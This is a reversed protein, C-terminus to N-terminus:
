YLKSEASKFAFAGSKVYQIYVYWYCWLVISPGLVYGTVMMSCAHEQPRPGLQLLESATQLLFTKKKLNLNKKSLLGVLWHWSSYFCFSFRVRVPPLHSGEPAFCQWMILALNVVVVMSLGREWGTLFRDGGGGALSLRWVVLGECVHSCFLRDLTDKGIGSLACITDV